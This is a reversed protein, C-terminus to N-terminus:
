TSRSCSRFCRPIPRSARIRPALPMGIAVPLFSFGMLVIAQIGVGLRVTREDQAGYVKQVLGPSIVFGTRASVPLGLRLWARELLFLRWLRADNALRARIM